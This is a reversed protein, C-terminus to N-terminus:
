KAERIKRRLSAIAGTFKVKPLEELHEVGLYALFKAEDAHAEEMLNRLEMFQDATISASGAANGDDDKTAINFIMCFLYRRGYSMTSGFAHTATKNATGKLGAGDAPVDAHYTESYGARSVVADVGYHGEVESKTPFFRISFGHATVVPMAVAEIAALDSYNSNTQTNRKNRLVTPIEAQCASFAANFAEKAAQLDLREKMALMRELKEISANPDLAVREIMSVMTSAEVPEIKAVQTM